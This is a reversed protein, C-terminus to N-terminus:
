KQALIFTVLDKLDADSIRTVPNPTMMGYTKGEKSKIWNKNVGMKTGSRVKKLLYDAPKEGKLYALTAADPAAYRAGVDKYSPGIKTNDISHCTMCGSKTMMKLATDKTLNAAFSTGTLLLISATALLFKIKKM